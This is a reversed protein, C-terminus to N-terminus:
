ELMGDTRSDRYHVPKEMLKGDQGLLGFDVGWTDISVADFGGNFVGFSLAIQMQEWLEDIDWRLHGDETIPVNAFRHIEELSIKGDECRCFMARASSAGFDFVLVTKAM